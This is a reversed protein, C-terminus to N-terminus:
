IPKFHKLFNKKNQQKWFFDPDLELDIDDEDDFTDCPLFNEDWKPNYINASGAFYTKYIIHKRSNSNILLIKYYAWQFM